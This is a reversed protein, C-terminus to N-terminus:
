QVFMGDHIMLNSITKTDVNILLRPEVTIKRTGDAAHAQTVAYSHMGYRIRKTHIQPYTCSKKPYTHTHIYTHEYRIYKTAQKQAQTSHFRESMGDSM